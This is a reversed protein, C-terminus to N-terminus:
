PAELTVTGKGAAILIFKFGAVEPDKGSMEWWAKKFSFPKPWFRRYDTMTTTGIQREYEDQDLYTLLASSYVMRHGPDQWAWISQWWPTSACVLGNPKLVRWIEQWLRFFGRYDGNYVLHELVEYAHVEDFQENEVPWPFETLDWVIDPNTTPDIDITVVERFNDSFNPGLADFEEQTTAGRVDHARRNGAGLVLVRDKM